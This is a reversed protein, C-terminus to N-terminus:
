NFYQDKIVPILPIPLTLKSGFAKVFLCSWLLKKLPFHKSIYWFHFKWLQLKQLKLIWTLVILWKVSMYCQELCRFIFHSMVVVLDLMWTMKHQAHGEFSWTANELVDLKHMAGVSSRLLSMLPLSCVIGWCPVACCHSGHLAIVKVQMSMRGRSQKGARSQSNRYACM